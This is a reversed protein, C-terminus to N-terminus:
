TSQSSAGERGKRRPNKRVKPTGEENRSRKRAGQQSSKVNLWPQGRKRNLAVQQRRSDNRKSTKHHSEKTLPNQNPDIPRAVPNCFDFFSHSRRSRRSATSTPM